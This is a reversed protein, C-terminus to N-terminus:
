KKSISANEQIFVTLSELIKNEPSQPCPQQGKGCIWTQTTRGNKAQGEGRSEDRLDYSSEDIGDM